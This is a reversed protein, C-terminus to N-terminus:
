RAAVDPKDAIFQIKGGFPGEITGAEVIDRGGVVGGAEALAVIGDFGDPGIIFDKRLGGRWPAARIARASLVYVAIIIWGVALGEGPDFVLVLHQGGDGVRAPDIPYSQVNARATIMVSVNM